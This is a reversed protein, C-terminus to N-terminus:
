VYAVALYLWGQMYVGGGKYHVAGINGKPVRWSLGWLIRVVVSVSGCDGGVGMHAYSYACGGSHDDGPCEACERSM